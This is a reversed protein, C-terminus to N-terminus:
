RAEPQQVAIWKQSVMAAEIQKAVARAMRSADAEVSAKRDSVGGAAAGVAVSGVGMTAAAGPKKGSQSKLNFESLVVPQADTTLSVTVHAQVDSAGRGFGIMMRKTKNGQNITKFEGRIVLTNAPIAAHDAPATEAPVASKQLESILTKAFAGQVQQALAATSSDADPERRELRRRQLRAAASQDMTVVDPSVTFDCILVKNPKPLPEGQYSAVVEVKADGVLVKKAADQAHAAAAAMLAAMGVIGIIATTSKWTM